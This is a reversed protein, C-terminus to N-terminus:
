KKSIKFPRYLKPIFPRRSSMGRSTYVRGKPTKFLAYKIGGKKLAGIVRTQPLKPM